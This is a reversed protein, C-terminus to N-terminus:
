EDKEGIAKWLEDIQSRIYEISNKDEIGQPPNELRYVEFIPSEMPSFGMRKLYICPEYEDKLIVTNGYAVPYNKAMDINPVSVYSQYM